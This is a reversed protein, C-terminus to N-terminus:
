NSIHEDSNMRRIDRSETIIYDGRIDHPEREIIGSEIMQCDYAVAVASLSRYANGDALRQLYKDYYGGGYGIRNGEEDFVVGPMLVFIEDEKDPVFVETSEPKPEIIGFTSIEFETKENVLYFEMQKGNVRPCYIRKGRKKAELYIEQTEVESRTSMYLLITNCKKFCELQIVKKAIRISKDSRELESLANRRALVEKRLEKKNM